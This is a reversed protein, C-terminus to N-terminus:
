NSKKKPIIYKALFPFLLIMIGYAILLYLLLTATDSIFIRIIVAITVILIAMLTRTSSDIRHLTKCNKCTIPKNGLILSTFIQIWTFPQKCSLCRQLRILVVKMEKKLDYNRDRPFYAGNLNLGEEKM